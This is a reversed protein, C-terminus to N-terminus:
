RRRASDTIQEPSLADYGPLPESGRMYRLKDLVEPRNRHSREYTEIAALEVQSFEVSGRSSRGTVWGTTAPSRFSM